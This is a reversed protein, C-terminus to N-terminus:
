RITNYFMKDINMAAIYFLCFSGICGAVFLTNIAIKKM